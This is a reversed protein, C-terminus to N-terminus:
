KEAVNFPSRAPGGAWVSAWAALGALARALHLQYPRTDEVDAPVRIADGICVAVTSGPLTVATKTWPRRLRYRVLGWSRVPLIPAGSSAALRVVGAKVDGLPARPGDCAMVVSTDSLLCSRLMILAEGGGRSSSGRVIDYGLASLFYASLSGDRSYSTMIALRRDSLIRPLGMFTDFIDQHVCTFIVPERRKLLRRTPRGARLVHRYFPVNSVVARLGKVIPMWFPNMWHGHPFTPPRIRYDTVVPKSKKM